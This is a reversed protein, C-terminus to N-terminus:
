NARVLACVWEIGVESEAPYWGPSESLEPHVSFEAAADSEVDVLWNEDKLCRVLHPFDCGLGEAILQVHEEAFETDAASRTVALTKDAATYRAFFQESDTGREQLNIVWENDSEGLERWTHTDTALPVWGRELLAAVARDTGIEDGFDARKEFRQVLAGGAQPGQAFLALTGDEKWVACPQPGELSEPAPLPAAQPESPAASGASLAILAAAEAPELAIFIQFGDAELEVLLDPEVEKLPWDDPAFLLANGVYEVYTDGHTLVGEPMGPGVDAAADAESPYFSLRGTGNEPRTYVAFVSRAPVDEAALM